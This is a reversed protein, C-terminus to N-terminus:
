ARAASVRPRVASRAVLLHRIKQASWLARLVFFSGPMLLLALYACWKGYRPAAPLRKWM